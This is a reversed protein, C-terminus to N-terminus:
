KKKPDKMKKTVLIKENCHECHFVLADVGAVKKRKFPIQLEGSKKCSSCTYEINAQLKSEYEKKEEANDCKSCVYEAARVKPKGTKEDVPKGMVGKKCKECHEKFVWAVVKSNETARRTFYVCEDMSAPQKLAM